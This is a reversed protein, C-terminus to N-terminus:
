LEPTEDWGGGGQAADNLGDIGEVGMEPSIGEECADFFRKRSSLLSRTKSFGGRAFLLSAILLSPCRVGVLDM